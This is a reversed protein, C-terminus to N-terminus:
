KNQMRTIRYSDIIGVIWLFILLWFGTHILQAEAPNPQQMVLNLISNVDPQVEGQEIKELIIFAREITGSIMLYLSFATLVLFTIGRYYKKLLFHGAGPFIFASFLVAKLSRTM